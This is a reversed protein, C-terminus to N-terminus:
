VVTEGLNGGNQRLYRLFASAGKSQMGTKWIVQHYAQGDLLLACSRLGQAAGDNESLFGVAARGEWIAEPVAPDTHLVMEIEPNERSFAALLDAMGEAMAPDAFVLSLIEREDKEQQRALFGDAKKLSLLLYVQAALFVIVALVAWM